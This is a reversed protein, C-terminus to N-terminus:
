IGLLLSLHLLMEYCSFLTGSLLVALFLELGALCMILLAELSSAAGHTWMLIAQMFFFIAGVLFMLSLTLGVLSLPIMSLVSIGAALYVLSM